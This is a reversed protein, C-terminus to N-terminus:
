PLRYSLESLNGPVRSNRLICELLMIALAIPFVLKEVTHKSAKTTTTKIKTM